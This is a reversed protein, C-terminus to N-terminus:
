CGHDNLHSRTTICLDMIHYCEAIGHTKPTEDM